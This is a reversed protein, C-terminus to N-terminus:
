CRCVNGRALGGELDEHFMRYGSEITRAQGEGHMDRWPRGDAFPGYLETQSQASSFRRGIDSWIEELALARHDLANARREPPM